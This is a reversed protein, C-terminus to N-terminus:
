GRRAALLESAEIRHAELRSMWHRWSRIIGHISFAYMTMFIWISILITTNSIFLLMNWPNLARGTSCAAIHRVLSLQWKSISLAKLIMRNQNGLVNQNSLLRFTWTSQLIYWINPPYCRDVIRGNLVQFIIRITVRFNRIAKLTMRNQNEPINQNSLLRFRWTLQLFSRTNPPYCRDVIRGNLVHLINPRQYWLVCSFRV